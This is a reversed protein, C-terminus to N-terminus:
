LNKGVLEELTFGLLDKIFPNADVIQGADGGLILIADQATEFLRRYRRESNSLAQALRKRETIDRVSVFLQGEGVDVYNASIELDITKGDKRKHQTEFRDYGREKINKIHQATEEPKERAELAAISMTLLEERTYGTMKCYSDNVELLRGELDDITFGDLATGLFKQYREESKLLSLEVRKRETIDIGYIRARKDAAPNITQEYISGGVEVNRRTSKSWNSSQLENVIRAWDALFPHKAGLTALDPFLHIAAPNAYNINGQQDTELVPNPNMAPFSALYNTKEVELRLDKEVARAQVLLQRLEELEKYLETTAKSEDRNM